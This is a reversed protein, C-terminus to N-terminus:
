GLTAARRTADHAKGSMGLADFLRAARIYADQAGLIDGVKRRLEALRLAVQADPDVELIEEYLQAAKRHQGQFALATARRRLELTVSM